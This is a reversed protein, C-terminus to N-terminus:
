DQFLGGEIIIHAYSKDPELFGAFNIIGRKTDSTQGNNDEMIDSKKSEKLLPYVVIHNKDLPDTKSSSGFFPKWVFHCKDAM